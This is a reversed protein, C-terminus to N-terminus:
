RITRGGVVNVTVPSVPPLKKILVTAEAFCTENRAPRWAIWRPAL